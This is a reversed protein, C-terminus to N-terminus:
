GHKDGLTINMLWFRSLRKLRDQIKYDLKPAALNLRQNVTEITKVFEKRRCVVGNHYRAISNNRNMESLGKAVSM